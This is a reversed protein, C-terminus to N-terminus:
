QFFMDVTSYAFSSPSFRRSNSLSNISPCQMYSQLSHFRFSLAMLNEVEPKKRSDTEGLGRLIGNPGNRIKKFIRLSIRLEPHVVPTMSVPPLDEILLTKMTTAVTGAVPTTSTSYFQLSGLTIKLPQPPLHNM